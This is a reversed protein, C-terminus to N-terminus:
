LPRFGGPKVFMPDIGFFWERQYNLTARRSTVYTTMHIDFIFSSDLHVGERLINVYMINHIYM